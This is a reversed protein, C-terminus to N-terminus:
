IRRNYGLAKMLERIRKEERAFSDFRKRTRLEYEGELYEIFKRQPILEDRYANLLISFNEKRLNTDNSLSMIMLPTRNALEGHSKQMPYGYYDLYQAIGSVLISDTFGLSDMAQQHAASRFGSYIMVSDEFRNVSHRLHYVSELYEQQADSQTLSNVPRDLFQAFALTPTLLLALLRIKL